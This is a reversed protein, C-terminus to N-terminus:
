QQNYGVQNTPQVFCTGWRTAAERHPSAMADQDRPEGMVDKCQVSVPFPYPAVPQGTRRSSNETESISLKLKWTKLKLWGPIQHPATSSLLLFKTQIILRTPPQIGDELKLPAANERLCKSTAAPHMFPLTAAKSEVYDEHYKTSQDMRPRFAIVVLQQSVAEDFWM